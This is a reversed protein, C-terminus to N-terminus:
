LSGKFWCVLGLLINYWQDNDNSKNRKQSVYKVVCWATRPCGSHSKEMRPRTVSDHWMYSHTIVSDHWMCPHTMHTMDCVHIRWLVCVNRRNASCCVAVCQLVDHTRRYIYIYTHNLDCVHSLWTVCTFSDHCMYSHTMNCMHILWAVCQILWTVRTFSDHCV